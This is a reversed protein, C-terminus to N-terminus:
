MYTIGKPLQGVTRLCQTEDKGRKGRQREIKFTKISMDELESLNNGVSHRTNILGNFAFTKMETLTNSIKLMKKKNKRLSEMERSVCGMQKQINHVKEMLARLM